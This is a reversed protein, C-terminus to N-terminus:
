VMAAELGEGAGFAALRASLKEMAFLPSVNADLERECDRVAEIAALVRTTTRPDRGAALRLHVSAHHQVLRLVLEAGARNASEKSRSEDEEVWAKAWSEALEAMTAGLEHSYRGTSAADLLPSLRLWWAHLGDRHAAAFMGPSGQAFELLWSRAPEAVDLGSAAFWREMHPRALPAFAVRQCRSRVTPKLSDESSTILMIVTRPPPEELTKLLRNQGSENLLEAEDIIFVRSAMAGDTAAGTQQAPEILFEEVVQTPIFKLKRDRVQVDRSFQALEKVVIRLDPHVGARLLQQTRSGPDPEIVGALNPRSTPDLLVGAFALAATFKGVGVPGHFLWAHHIRGGSVAARLISIARDQGLVDSFTRLPPAPLNSEPTSAAFTRPAPEKRARPAAPAAPKKAPLLPEGQDAAKAAPKRALVM